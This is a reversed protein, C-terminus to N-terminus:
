WHASAYVMCSFVMSLIEKDIYVIITHMQVIISGVSKGFKRNKASSKPKHLLHVHLDIHRMFHMCAADDQTCSTHRVPSIPPNSIQPLLTFLRCPGLPTHRNPAERRGGLVDLGGPSRMTAMTSFYERRPPWYSASSYPAASPLIGPHQSFFGQVGAGSARGRLSHWRRDPPPAAWGKWALISSFSTDIALNCALTAGPM